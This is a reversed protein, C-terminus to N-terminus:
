FVNLVVSNPSVTKDCKSIIEVVSQIRKTMEGHRQDGTTIKRGIDDLVAQRDPEMTPPLCCSIAFNFKPPQPECITTEAKQTQPNWHVEYIMFHGNNDKGGILYNRIGPLSSKNKKVYDLVARYVMKVSLQDYQPYCKLPEMIDENPNLLGTAGFLVRKNIQFVKRFDDRLIRIDNGHYSVLRQDAVFTCFNTGVIGIISSMYAMEKRQLNSM